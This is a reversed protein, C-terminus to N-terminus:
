GKTIKSYMCLEQFDASVDLTKESVSNNSLYVLIDEYCFIFYFWLFEGGVNYLAERPSSYRRFTQQTIGIKTVTSIDRLSSDFYDIRSFIM